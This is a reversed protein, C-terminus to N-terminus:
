EFVNFENNLIELFVVDVWCYINSYNSICLNSGEYSREFCGLMM